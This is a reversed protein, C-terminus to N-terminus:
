QERVLLMADDAYKFIDNSASVASLDADAAGCTTFRTHKNGRRGRGEKGEGVRGWGERWKRGTGERGPHLPGFGM